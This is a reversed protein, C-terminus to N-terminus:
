KKDGKHWIAHFHHTPGHGSGVNLTDALEIAGQVYKKSRQVSTSLDFGQAIHAALAASLTCGTGHTNKTLIRNSEFWESGSHSILLDPSEKSELHGGKMLVAQSGLGLSQQPRHPAPM